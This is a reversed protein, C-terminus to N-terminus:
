RALAVSSFESTNGDVDTATASVRSDVPAAGPAVVTFSGTGASLTVTVAGLFTRGEGYGSADETPSSFLEVRYTGPQGNLVGSVLTGSGDLSVASGIVPYNQLGNPGGDADGADNPTAAADSGLDIGLGGNDSIGNGRIANGDGAEGGAFTGADRGVLVGAGGNFAIRNGAGKATGGIANDHAGNLIAVGHSANPVGGTGAANTGIRNGLIRIATAGASSVSVGARANGSITNGAAVSTGGVTIQSAGQAITIGDSGNGLAATGAATTGIRNGLITTETTAADGVFVGALGNGSITNGAGSLAAGVATARAGALVAVGMEANGLAATGPLNTGIHNGQVTTGDSGDDSIQIGRTNASITNGDGAAPGGIRTAPAGGDVQVGVTGNGVARTGTTDVGIRSARVVTGRTGAGTVRVGSQTNGSVVAGDITTATAGAAVVVGRQNALAATGAANTGIRSASVTTGDTGDDTVLVGYRLNASITGGRVSTATAGAEVLVGVDNALRGTGSNTTGIRNASVITGATGEGAVHVGAGENGSILNWAGRAAGGVVTATAGAAIVVGEGNALAQTRGADTGIANGEIRNKATGAGAVLVGATTNGSVLNGNAVTRGGVLNGSGKAFVGVGVDNPIALVGSRDTGIVNGRVVNVTTGVGGIAVGFRRNASIVNAPGIVVGTAPAQVVIGDRGNGLATSGAPSTGIASATVTARRAAIVIGNRPFRDVALARVASGGANAGFRLGDVTGAVAQGSLEILPTTAYGPQTTGDLDLPRTVTPLASAVLITRVGAGPIAFVVRDAAVTANAAVIAQRLSGAGADAASTVTLTAASAGPALVVAQVVTAALGIGAGWGRRFGQRGM